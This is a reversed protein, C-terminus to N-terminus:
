AARFFVMVWKVMERQQEEDSKKLLYFYGIKIYFFKVFLNNLGIKLIFLIKKRM